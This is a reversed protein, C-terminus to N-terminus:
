KTGKIKEMSRMTGLGLMGAVIAYLDGLELKPPAPWGHMVGFWELLPQLLYQYTLALGGVWGVYPRWGAVFLNTNAAETKNIDQQGTALRLDADLKAVEVSTQLKLLETQAKLKADKDPIVKDIIELLPGAIINFISM